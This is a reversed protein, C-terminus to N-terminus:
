VEGFVVGIFEYNFIALRVNPVLYVGEILGCRWLVMKGGAKFWSLHENLGKCPLIWRELGSCVPDSAVKVEFGDPFGYPIFLTTM